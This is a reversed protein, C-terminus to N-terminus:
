KKERKNISEFIKEATKDWESLPILVVCYGNPRKVIYPKIVKNLVARFQELKLGDIDKEKLLRELPIERDGYKTMKDGRGHASGVM